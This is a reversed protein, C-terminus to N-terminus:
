PEPPAATAPLLSGYIAERLQRERRRDGRKWAVDALKLLLRTTPAPASSRYWREAEDWRGAAFSADGALERWRSTDWTPEPSEAATGALEFAREFDGGLMTLYFAERAVRELDTSGRAETDSRRDVAPEDGRSRELWRWAQDLAGDHAGIRALLLGYRPDERWWAPLTELVATAENTRGMGVLALARAAGVLPGPLEEAASDLLALASAFDGQALQQCGSRWAVAARVTPDGLVGEAIPLGNSPPGALARALDDLRGSSRLATLRSGTLGLDEPLIGPPCELRPPLDRYHEFLEVFTHRRGPAVFPAFAAERTSAVVVDDVYYLVNSRDTFPDGVFSFTDVASGPHRTANPQDHLAVVPEREGERRIDLDYAGEAIRYELDVAYWTFPEVRLLRKPISDSTHFLSGDHVTLWFAIGDPALRFREPGALAADLEQRPDTVLISFHLFLTGDRRLAFWGQLEPFDGDGAQDHIEVSRTGSVRYRESLRVTGRADAFVQFTDPGSDVLEDDFSYAVLIPSPAVATEPVEAAARVGSSSGGLGAVLLAVRLLPARRGGRGRPAPGRGTM